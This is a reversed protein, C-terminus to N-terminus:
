GEGERFHDAEGGEQRDADDQPGGPRDSDHPPGSARSHRRDGKVTTEMEVLASAYNRLQRVSLGFREQLTKARASILSAACRCQRAAQEGSLGQLVLYEFVAHLPAKRAGSETRLKALVAFIRQAERRNIPEEQGASRRIAALADRIERLAEMVERHATASDGTSGNHAHTKGEADQDKPRPVAGPGAGAAVEQGGTPHSCQAASAEQAEGEPRGAAGGGDAAGAAGGEAGALKGGAGERAPASRAGHSTGGPQQAVTCGVDDFEDGDAYGAVVGAALLVAAALRLGAWALAPARGSAAEAPAFEARKSLMARIAAQEEETAQLIRFDGRRVDDSHVADIRDM